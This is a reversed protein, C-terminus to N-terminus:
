LPVAGKEMAYYKRIRPNKTYVICKQKPKAHFSFTFFYRNRYCRIKGKKIAIGECLSMKCSLPIKRDCQRKKVRKTHKSLPVFLCWTRGSVYLRLTKKHLASCDSIGINWKAFVLYPYSLSLTIPFYRKQLIWVINCPNCFSYLCFGINLFGLTKGFSTKM